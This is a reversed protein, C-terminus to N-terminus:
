VVASVHWSATVVIEEEEALMRNSMSAFWVTYKGGDKGNVTIPGAGAQINGAGGEEIAVTGYRIAIDNMSEYILSSGLSMKPQGGPGANLLTAIEIVFPQLSEFPKGTWIVRCTRQLDILSM